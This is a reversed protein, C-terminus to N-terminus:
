VRFGSGQVRFGSGAGVHDARSGSRFDRFLGRRGAM